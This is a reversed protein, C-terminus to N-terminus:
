LHFELSMHESRVFDYIEMVNIQVRITIENKLDYELLKRRSWSLNIELSELGFTESSFSM